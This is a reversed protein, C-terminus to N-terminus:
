SRVGTGRLIGASGSPPPHRVGTVESELRSVDRVPIHGDGGDLRQRKWPQEEGGDGVVRGWVREGSRTSALVLLASAASLRASARAIAM